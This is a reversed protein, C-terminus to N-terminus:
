DLSIFIAKGAKLSEVAVKRESSMERKPDHLQSPLREFLRAFSVNIKDQVNYLGNAIDDNTLKRDSLKLIDFNGDASRFNLVASYQIDKEMFANDPSQWGAYKTRPDDTDGTSAM